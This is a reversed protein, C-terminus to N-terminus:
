NRYLNKLYGWTANKVPVGSCGLGYAGILGCATGGPHNGPLCPSDSRLTYDGSGSTGCFYPDASFNGGLDIVWSPWTDGGTNGFIDSCGLSAAATSEVALGGGDESFALVCCDLNVSSTGKIYVGGGAPARNGAFTCGTFVASETDSAYLGGGSEGAVNDAFLTNEVLVTSQSLAIGAGRQDCTNGVVTCGSVTLLSQSYGVGIGAAFVRAHNGTFTCNELRTNCRSTAWFGAGVDATNGTFICNRIVDGEAIHVCIGGGIYDDSAPADGGTITFGDLTVHNYGQFFIVRDQGQADLITVEPGAVSRMTFHHNYRYFTLLGFMEGGQDAWTYRGPGVLIEDGPGASDVAAQITPADGTGDVAVYWTRCLPSTVAGLSLAAALLCFFIYRITSM